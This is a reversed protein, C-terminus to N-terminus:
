DSIGGSEKRGSDMRASELIALDSMRGSESRSSEMRAPDPFASNSMRDSSESGKRGSDM